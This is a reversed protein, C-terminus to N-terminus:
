TEKVSGPSCGLAFSGAAAAAAGGEFNSDCVGQLLHVSALFAQNTSDSRDVSGEAAKALCRPQRCSCRGERCKPWESVM